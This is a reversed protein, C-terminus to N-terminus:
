FNDTKPLVISSTEISTDSGINSATLHTSFDNDNQQYTYYGVALCMAGIIYNYDYTFQLFSNDSENNLITDKSVILLTGILVAVVSVIYYYNM